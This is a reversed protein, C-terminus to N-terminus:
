KHAGLCFGPTPRCKMVRSVQGHGHVRVHEAEPYSEVKCMGGHLALQGLPGYLFLQGVADDKIYPWGVGPYRCGTRRTTGECWM